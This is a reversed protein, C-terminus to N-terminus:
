GSEFSRIGAKAALASSGLRLKSVACSSSISTRHSRCSSLSRDRLNGAEASYAQTTLNKSIAESDARLNRHLRHHQTHMIAIPNSEEIHHPRQWCSTGPTALGLSRCLMTQGLHEVVSEDVNTSADCSLVDRESCTDSLGCGLKSSNSSDFRSHSICCCRASRNSRAAFCTFRRRSSASPFRGPPGCTDNAGVRSAGFGTRGEINTALVEMRTPPAVSRAPDSM